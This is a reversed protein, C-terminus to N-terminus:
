TAAHIEGIPVALISEIEQMIQVTSPMCRFLPADAEPNVWYANSIKQLTYALECAAELAETELEYIEAALRTTM